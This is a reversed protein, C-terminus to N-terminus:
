LWPRKPLWFWCLGVLCLPFIIGLFVLGPGFLAMGAPVHQPPLAPLGPLLTKGRLAHKAEGLLMWHLWGVLLSMQVPGRVGRTVPTTLRRALGPREPPPAPPRRSSWWPFLGWDHRWALWALPAQSIAMVGAYGATRALGISPAWLCRVVLVLVALVPVAAALVAQLEYRDRWSV